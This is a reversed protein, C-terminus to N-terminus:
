NGKGPHLFTEIKLEGTKSIRVTIAGFQSTRYLPIDGALRNFDRQKKTLRRDNSSIIAEPHVAGIFEGTTTESSGHHPAVLINAHLNEPHDILERETAAQIDAPFLITRGHCNLRLVVGANNTSTFPRADPPWLVDLTADDNLTLHRGRTVTEIPIHLDDLHHLMAVAPLSATAQQRFVPSLYVRAPHYEDATDATASIHDYDPHSLFIADISRVGRTRLYPDLITRLPATLSSSGDDILLTHGNSLEIIGIQGAGISLLTIRTEGNGPTPALFFKRGWPKLNQARLEVPYLMQSRILLNSTRIKVPASEGGAFETTPRELRILTKGHCTLTGGAVDDSRQATEENRTEPLQDLAPEQDRDNLKAKRGDKPEDEESPDDM